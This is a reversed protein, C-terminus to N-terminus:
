YGAIRDLLPHQRKLSMFPLKEVGGNPPPLDNSKSLLINEVKERLLRRLGQFILLFNGESERFYFSSDPPYPSTPFWDAVLGAERPRM